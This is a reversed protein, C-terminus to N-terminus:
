VAVKKKSFRDGLNFVEWMERSLRDIDEMQYDKGVYAFGIEEDRKIKARKELLADYLMLYDQDTIDFLENFYKM